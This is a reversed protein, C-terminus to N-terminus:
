TDNYVIIDDSCANSNITAYWRSIMPLHSRMVQKLGTINTTSSDMRQVLKGRLIKGM